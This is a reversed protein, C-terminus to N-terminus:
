SKSSYPPPVYISHYTHNSYYSTYQTYHQQSAYVSNGYYLIDGYPPDFSKAVGLKATAAVTALAGAIRLIAKRRSLKEGGLEEPGQIEDKEM